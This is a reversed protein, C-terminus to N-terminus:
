HEFAKRIAKARATKNGCIKDNAQLSEELPNETKAYKLIFYISDLFVDEVSSEVEEQSGNYHEGQWLKDMSALACEDVNEQKSLKTKGYTAEEYKNVAQLVLPTIAGGMIVANLEIADKYSMGEKVKTVVDELFQDINLAEQISESM